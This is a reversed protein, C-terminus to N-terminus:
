CGDLAMRILKGLPVIALNPLPEETTVQDIEPPIETQTQSVIDRPPTVFSAHPIDSADSM